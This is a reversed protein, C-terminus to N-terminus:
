EALELEILPLIGNDKLLQYIFLRGKQTWKTILKVDSSGDSRSFRITESHTYGKKHHKAYLLWQDSQKYQVGLEHLVKNMERASKGYDKAIQTMTMLSKNKLIVDTYDAKPKLEHVHQELVKNKTELKRISQQHEKLKTALEIITDPNSLVNEITQPTMYAGNKRITKLINKVEKKFQKAIDKRSQMLVEYLGDETLFWMKRKQGSALITQMLKEDDDVTKLMESARSHEIWNAVDKALFLPEEITGYIRFEKGLVEREDIVEISQMGGKVVRIM